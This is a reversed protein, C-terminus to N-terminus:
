LNTNAPRSTADLTAAACSTDRSTASPPILAAPQSPFISGPSAFFPPFSSPEFSSIAPL